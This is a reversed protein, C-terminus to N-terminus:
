DDKGIVWQTISVIGFIIAVMAFGFSIFVYPKSKEVFKLDHIHVNNMYLSITIIAAVFLLM